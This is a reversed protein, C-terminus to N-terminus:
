TGCPLRTHGDSVTSSVKRRTAGFRRSTSRTYAMNGRRASRLDLPPACSDPPSCCISAIPRAKSSCGLSKTISSGVSPSAGTITSCTAWASRSSACCPSIATSSISCFRPTASDTDLRIPTITLPQMACSIAVSCSALSRAKCSRSSPKREPPCSSGLTLVVGTVAASGACINVTSRAWLPLACDGLLTAGLVTLPKFRHFAAPYESPLACANGPMARRAGASAAASCGANGLLVAARIKSTGTAAVLM